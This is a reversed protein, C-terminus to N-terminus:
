AFNPPYIERKQIIEDLDEELLTEKEMLRNAIDSLTDFNQRLINIASEYCDDIIERIEANIPQANEKFTHQDYVINGLKSM